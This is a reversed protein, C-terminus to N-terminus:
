GAHALAANIAKEFTAAPQAGFIQTGGILFAPTGNVGLSLGQQFDARVSRATAASTMDARFRALNLGLRAALGVLHSETLAGSNVPHQSAYLADHYQWFKGQDAAARAALAATTSQPGLYPYDRWEIRLKGTDVYRRVLIPETSRAFEGCFPCQFDAWEVMIVPAKVSGLALPDGPVRTEVGAFQSGPPPDAAGAPRAGPPPPGPSVPPSGPPVMGSASAGRRTLRPSAAAAPTGTAGGGGSAAAAALVAIALGAAGAGAWVGVARPRGRRPGPSATM